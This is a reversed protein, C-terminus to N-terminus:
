IVSVKLDLSAETGEEAPNKTGYPYPNMTLYNLWSIQTTGPAFKFSRVLLSLVIKLELVAFKYGRNFNILLSSGGDNSYTSSYVGPLKADIVSNPLDQLWREPRFENADKGWTERYPPGSFDAARLITPRFVPPISSVQMSKSDENGDKGKVPYQLPITRDENTEREMFTTPPFLRLTERCIADLYPLSNVEEYTMSEPAEAIEARLRDQISSNQSLIHIIRAIASNMQGLIEADSLRDEKSAGMNTRLLISILDRPEDSGEHNQLAAKREALITQAQKEQIDIIKKINRVNAAPAWQALKPGLWTPTIRYIFPFIGMLPGLRMVEPFFTKVARIYVSETGDLVGFSYGLGAQGVMELAVASCWRLVDMEKTQAEGIENAIAEKMKQAIGHFVPVVAKICLVKRQARHEERKCAGLGPGFSAANITYFYSPHTFAADPEKVVIEHLFRPDSVYLNEKGFFGQVKTVSGYTEQLEEHFEVEVPSFLKLLHGFIVHGGAPGDINPYVSLTIFRRFTYGALLLILLGLCKFPHTCTYKAAAYVLSNPQNPEFM